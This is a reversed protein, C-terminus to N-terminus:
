GNHDGLMKSLRTRADSLNSKITGPSCELLEAVEAIPLDVYYHLIIAQRQRRPLKNVARRLDLDSERHLYQAPTNTEDGLRFRRRRRTLQRMQDSAIALLWYKVSGRKPDYTDWKLWARSLTEQVVDEVESDAGHIRAFRRLLVIYPMVLTEFKAEGPPSVEDPSAKM